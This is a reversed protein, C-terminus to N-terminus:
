VSRRREELYFLEDLQITQEDIYFTLITKEPKGPPETTLFEGAVPTWDRIRSSWFALSWNPGHAVIVSGASKLKPAAIVSAQPGWLGQEVAGSVM